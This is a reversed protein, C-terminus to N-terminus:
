GLWDHYESRDPDLAVAREWNSIAGNFHRIEYYCRGLWYYFSPKKPNQAVAAQLAEAAQQYQGANYLTEIAPPISDLGTASARAPSGGFVSALLVALVLRFM